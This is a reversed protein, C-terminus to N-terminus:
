DSPFYFQQLESILFILTDSDVVQYGRPEFHDKKIQAFKRRKRELENNLTSIDNKDMETQREM